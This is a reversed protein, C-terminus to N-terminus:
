NTHFKQIRDHHHDVVYLNNQRDFTLYSAEAFKNSDDSHGDQPVIISGTTGRKLWRMMRNNGRDSVYLTGLQDIIVGSPIWLQTMNNGQGQGGAVVIGAKEDKFWKMVRNNNCDSVYISQDQDISIFYPTDLQNSLNGPGNGGAVITGVTDGTKWRRVLHYLYDVMYISGDNDMILDWCGVNSIIIEGVTGNRRPWRVIRNNGSDCIILTDNERDIIVNTPHSFQDTENGDGNGGAVIQGSSEGKKWELIRHNEADAIYLTDDDDIYMAVSGNLQNLESGRGNGGAVTIGQQIWEQTPDINPIIYQEVFYFTDM